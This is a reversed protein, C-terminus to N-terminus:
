NDHIFGYVAMWYFELNCENSNENDSCVYVDFGFTTVNGVCFTLPRIYHLGSGTYMPTCFVRPSATFVHNFKVHFTHVQKAVNLKTKIYGHM